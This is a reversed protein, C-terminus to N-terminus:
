DDTCWPGSLQGAAINALDGDEVAALAQSQCSMPNCGIVEDASAQRYSSLASRRPQSGSNRGTLSRREVLSTSSNPREKDDSREMRRSKSEDREEDEFFTRRDTRRSTERSDRYEYRDNRSESRRDGDFQNKIQDMLSRIALVVTDREALSESVFRFKAWEGVSQKMKIVFFSDKKHRGGTESDSTGKDSGVRAIHRIKLRIDTNNSKSGDNENDSEDRNSRIRVRLHTKDSNTSLNVAQGNVEKNLWTVNFGSELKKMLISSSKM